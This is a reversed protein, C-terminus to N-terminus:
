PIVAEAALTSQREKSRSMLQSHASRLQQETTMQGCTLSASGVEASARLRSANKTFERNMSMGLAGGTEVISEQDHM